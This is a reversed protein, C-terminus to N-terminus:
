WNFIECLIILQLLQGVVGGVLTCLFNYNDFAGLWQREELNKGVGFGIACLITGIFAIFMGMLCEKLYNKNKFNFSEM